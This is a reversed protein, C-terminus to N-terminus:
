PEPLPHGPPLLPPSDDPALLLDALRAMVGRYLGLDGVVRSCVLAGEMLIKAEWVRRQATAPGVGCDMLLQAFRRSRCLQRERLGAGFRELGNGIGFANAPTLQRARYQVEDIVRLYERLRQEAPADSALLADLHQQAWLDAQELVACAMEDKGGPFHHYLSARGCGTRATILALTTGDYGYEYFLDVLRSVLHERTESKPRAM